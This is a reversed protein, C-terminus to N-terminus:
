MEEIGKIRSILFELSRKVLQYKWIKAFSDVESLEFKDPLHFFFGVM